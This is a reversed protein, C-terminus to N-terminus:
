NTCLYELSYYLGQCHYHPSCATLLEKLIADCVAICFAICLPRIAISTCLHIAPNKKCQLLLTKNLVFKLAKMIAVCFKSALFQKGSMNCKYVVNSNQFRPNESTSSFRLPSSLFSHLARCCRYPKWQVLGFVDQILHNFHWQKYKTNDTRRVRVHGKWIANNVHLCRELDSCTWRDQKSHGKLTNVPRDRLGTAQLLICSYATAYTDGDARNHGTM